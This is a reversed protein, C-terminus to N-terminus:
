VNHNENDFLYFYLYIKFIKFLNKQCERGFSPDVCSTSIKMIIYNIHNEKENIILNSAM